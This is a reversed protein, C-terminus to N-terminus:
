SLPDDEVNSKELPEGFADTEPEDMNDWDFSTEIPAAYHSGTLRKFADPSLTWTSPKINHQACFNKMEADIDLAHSVFGNSFDHYHKTAIEAYAAAFGDPFRRASQYSFGFSIYITSKPDDASALGLFLWPEVKTMRHFDNMMWYCDMGNMAFETTLKDILPAIHEAPEGKWGELQQWNAPAVGPTRKYTM